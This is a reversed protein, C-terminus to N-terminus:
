VRSARIFLGLAVLTLVLSLVFPAGAFPMAREPATAYFFSTSMLIPSVVMAVAATAGLVGQLEGQRTPGIGMSLLATVAPGFMGGLASFPILALALVGNPVIATAGLSVAMFCLGALATRREGLHRIIMPMLAGQVAAFCLGFVALSIGIPRADWGFRATCFYSWVLPYVAFALHYLFIVVISQALGPLKSLAHFAGIPNAHRWAIQSSKDKNTEPFALLGLILNLACLGAAAWFPARVGWEGLIGGLLPGAIFGIGFAAGVLGFGQARKEPPHLDAMAASATSQTASAMGGLARAVILLAVTGALGLLIYDVIVIALTILLVPRRGFYDSLVGLFPAFLFQMIAFISSMVGGWLAAESLDGGSVEGILDPMVPMILGIGMADIVVSMMLFVIPLRM